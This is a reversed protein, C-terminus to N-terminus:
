TRGLRQESLSEVLRCLFSKAWSSDNASLRLAHPKVQIEDLRQLFCGLLEERRHFISVCANGSVWTTLDSIEDRTKSAGALFRNTWDVFSCEISSLIGKSVVTSGHMLCRENKRTECLVELSFNVGCM